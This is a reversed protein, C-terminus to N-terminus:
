NKADDEGAALEEGGVNAAAVVIDQRLLNYEPNTLVELKKAGDFVIPTGDDNTFGDTSIWIVELIVSTEVSERREKSLGNIRETRPVADILKARLAEAAACTSGKLRHKVGTFTPSKVLAGAEIAAQAKPIASLKM